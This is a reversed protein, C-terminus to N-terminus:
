KRPRAAREANHLLQKLQRINGARGGKGGNGDRGDRSRSRSRSAAARSSTAAVRSSTAADELSAACIQAERLEGQISTICKEAVRRSARVQELEEDAAKRSARIKELEDDAARRTARARELEEDAAKRSARIKELEGETEECALRARKMFVEAAAKSKQLEAVVDVPPPVGMPKPRAGVAASKAPASPMKPTTAPPVAAPEVKPEVEPEVKPEVTAAASAPAADDDNDLPDQMAHMAEMTANVYHENERRYRAFDDRDQKALWREEDGQCCWDDGWRPMCLFHIPKGSTKFCRTTKMLECGVAQSERPNRGCRGCKADAM